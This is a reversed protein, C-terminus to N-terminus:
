GPNQKAMKIKYGVHEAVTVNNGQQNAV